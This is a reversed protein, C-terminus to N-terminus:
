FYTITPIYASPDPMQGSVCAQADHPTQAGIPGLTLADPYRLSEPSRMQAFGYGVVRDGRRFWLPVAGVERILYALDGPRRRRGPRHIPTM